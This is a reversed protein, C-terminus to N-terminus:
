PWIQRKLKKLVPLGAGCEEIVEMRRRSHAGLTNNCYSNNGFWLQQQHQQQQMERTTTTTTFCFFQLKRM